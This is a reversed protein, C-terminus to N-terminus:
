YGEAPQWLDFEVGQDDRCRANGGSPWEDLSLVEGGLTRVRAAAAQLDRVRFYLTPATGVPGDHFGMPIKTSPNHMGVHGDPSPEPEPMDWGFLEGYFRRARVPDPVAITYYGVENWLDTARFPVDPEGHRDVPPSSINWRHGFPDSLWGARGYFQDSPPREATAGREVARAYVSDVDAVTIVFSTTPGGRTRPGLADYDPSEDALFITAAGIRLEAHGVHGDDMIIPEGVVEAGFIEGYWEIASRADHVALYPTITSLVAGGLLPPRLAAELRARLENAFEPRPSEPTRGLRLADLADSM